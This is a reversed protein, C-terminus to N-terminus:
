VSKLQKAKVKMLLISLTVATPEMVGQHSQTM